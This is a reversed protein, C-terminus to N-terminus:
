EAGWSEIWCDFPADANRAPLYYLRNANRCATDLGSGPVAECGSPIPQQSTAAGIAHACAWWVNEWQMPPVHLDREGHGPEVCPMVIRARADATLGHKWTTHVLGHSTIRKAEALIRAFVNPDADDFDYAVCWLGEPNLNGERCGRGKHDLQDFAGFAILPLDAPKESPRPGRMPVAAWAKYLAVLEFWTLDLIEPDAMLGRRITTRM